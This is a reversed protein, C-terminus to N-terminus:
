LFWLCYDFTGSNNRRAIWTKLQSNLPWTAGPGNLPVDSTWLQTSDYTEDITLEILRFYFSSPDTLVYDIKKRKLSSFSFQFQIQNCVPLMMSRQPCVQVGCNLYTRDAVRAIEHLHGLLISLDIVWSRFRRGLVM